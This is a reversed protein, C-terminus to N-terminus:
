ERLVYIRKCYEEGLSAALPCSLAYSMLYVWASGQYLWSMGPVQLTPGHELSQEGNRRTSRQEFCQQKRKQRACFSWYSHSRKIHCKAGMCLPTSTGSCWWYSGFRVFMDIICHIICVDNVANASGSSVKGVAPNFIKTPEGRIGHGTVFLVPQFPWIWRNQDSRGLPEQWCNRLLCKSLVWKWPRPEAHGNAAYHLWWNQQCIERIREPKLGPERSLKTLHPDGGFVQGIGTCCAPKPSIDWIVTADGCSQSTMLFQHNAERGPTKLHRHQSTLGLEPHLLLHGNRLKM